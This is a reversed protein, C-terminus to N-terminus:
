DDSKGLIKSSGARVTNTTTHAIIHMTCCFLRFKSKYMTNSYEIIILNYIVYERISSFLWDDDFSPKIDM